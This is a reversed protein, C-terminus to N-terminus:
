GPGFRSLTISRGRIGRIVPLLVELREGVVLHTRRQARYQMGPHLASHATQEHRRPLFAQPSTDQKGALASRSLRDARESAKAPPPQPIRTIIVQMTLLVDLPVLRAHM